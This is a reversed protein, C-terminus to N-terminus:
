RMPSNCNLLLAGLEVGEAMSQNGTNLTVGGLDGLAHGLLSHGLAGLDLREDLSNVEVVDHRSAVGKVQLRELVDDALVSELLRRLPLISLLGDLLSKLLSVGGALVPPEELLKPVSKGSKTVM